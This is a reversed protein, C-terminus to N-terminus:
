YHYELGLTVGQAWFDTTKFLVAPLPSGVLAPPNTFHALQTINVRRDIQDDARVVSSLYLVNYGAFVRLHDTVDYNLKIGFEPLVAFRNQHFRGINSPATLLGGVSTTTVGTAAVTSNTFGDIAVQQSVNGIAVKLSGTLAFRRWYRWEGEVGLQGGNFTNQTGFIDRLFIPSEITTTPHLDETINLNDSLQFYRYGILGDVYWTPGCWLRRRLDLDFGWASTTENVTIRGPDLTRAVVEAVETGVPVPAGTVTRALPNENIFPRGIAPSGNSAASFTGSRQPIWFASVDFGWDPDRRSWFGLSVRGGYYPNDPQDGASYVVTSAGSNLPLLAATPATTVLAEGHARSLSWALVEGRVWFSPRALCCGGCPDCCPDCCAGCDGSNFHNWIDHLFELPHWGSDCCPDCCCGCGPASIGCGCGNLPSGPMAMGDHPVMMPGGVMPPGVVTGEIPPSMVTSGMPGPVISQPAPAIFESGPTTPITPMPRPVEKGAPQLGRTSEFVLGAAEDNVKGRAIFGAPQIPRGITVIDDDASRAPAPAVSRFTLEQAGAPVCLLGFALIGAQLHRKM